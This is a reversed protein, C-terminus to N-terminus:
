DVTLCGTWVSTPHQPGLENRKGKMRKFLTKVLGPVAEPTTGWLIREYYEYEHGKEHLLDAVVKHLVYEHLVSSSPLTKVVMGVTHPRFPFVGGEAHSVFVGIEDMIEHRIKLIKLEECLFFLECLFHCGDRLAKGKNSYNTVLTEYIDLASKGVLMWKVLTEFLEPKHDPLFVPDKPTKVRSVNLLDNFHLSHLCILKISVGFHKMDRGLYIDLKPQEPGSYPGHTLQAAEYLNSPAM